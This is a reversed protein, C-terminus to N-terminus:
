SDETFQYRLRVGWQTQCLGVMITAIGKASKNNQSDKLNSKFLERLFKRKNKASSSSLKKEFGTKKIAHKGIKITKKKKKLNLSSPLMENEKVFFFIMNADTM